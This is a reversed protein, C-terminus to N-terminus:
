QPRGPKEAPPTPRNRMERKQKETLLDQAKIAVQEGAKLGQKVEVVRDNSIGLTVERWEFGGEPKIVAVRDKDDYRVIAEVPVSIVEDHESVLFDVRATMGPLLGRLRQDLKVKTTYVKIGASRSNAPDPLPAIEVISGSLKEDPFADVVINAKMKGSLRSIQSEHVKTNVVLARDLDLVSFIKQRERVTAGEEIQPPRGPFRSPDNALVLRGDITAKLTCLQIQQELKRAKNHEHQFAAKRALEDSRKREVDIRLEKTTRPMTMEKLVDQKIKAQDLALRERVLTLEASEVRDEIDLEALIDTPAQEAGKKALAELVRKRAIRARELRSDANAIASQAVTVADKLTGLDAKFIGDVYETVASEAAERALKANQYAAEASKVTIWQNVLQDKLAASDLECVVQGQKVASGDPLIQIITTPGEILSHGDRAESAELSGREIVTVSLKGPKVTTAPVDDARAAQVVPLAFLTGKQALLGVGSSTAGLFLAVSAVKSWKTLSMSTLVGRALSSATGPVFTRVAIFQIAAKLTSNALAPSVVASAADPRIAAALVGAQPALGRRRLRDRLRERGRAQRSKVSGIPWGLHRAAQEHSRGELDCLVLPVRFREPLREIEEHLVRALDDHVEVRAEQKLMAACREHRHRRASALRACSATRYAVQHLWPGLSDRVWLGRAKKVLVLFTAQFADQTDNPDVLVARCVRLVMPGHREVLAAFALEGVEGDGTAFRELLQGDTLERITGVNFLTRLQRVVARNKGIAV